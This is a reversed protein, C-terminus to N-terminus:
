DRALPVAGKLTLTVSNEDFSVDDPLGAEELAAKAYEGFFKSGKVGLDHVLTVTTDGAKRTVNFEFLGAYRSMLQLYGILEERTAKGDRALVFSKPLTQGARRGAERVAEDGAAQLIRRLTPRSLKVM